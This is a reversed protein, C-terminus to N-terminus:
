AWPDTDYLARPSLDLRVTVDDYDPQLPQVEEHVGEVFYDVSTFGGGGPLGVTLVVTDSIDVLSLLEWNAAARADDPHLSRFAVDQVRPHAFKYNEVYFTAFRKCEARGDPEPSETTSYTLLNTASWSCVGNKDISEANTVLLSGVLDDPTGAQVGIASNIVKSVSESFGFGRIQATDDPSAAVAAGDGVQWVHYDWLGGSDAAVDDPFFKARRSHFAIRGRRDCFVNSVGPFDGDAAEQIVALPSEGASYVQGYLIVGGPLLARFPAPIAFDSLARAIRDDSRESPYYVQGESGAPPWTGAVGPQMEARALRDFQDTLSIVLRNVVQSPDTQYVLEDIYGRFRTAWEGSVPNRRGIMAQLSPMVKGYFPSDTKTPDLIGDVDNLTVTARGTDTRDFEDNRGRDITYGAVLNPYLDPDDLRTWTPYPENARDDFAVLFRGEPPPPPEPPPTIELTAWITMWDDPNDPDTSPPGDDPSPPILDPPVPHPGQIPSWFVGVSVTGAAGRATALGYTWAGNNVHAVDEDTSLWTADASIDTADTDGVYTILAQFQQQGDAPITATGPIMEFSEIPPSDTIYYPV